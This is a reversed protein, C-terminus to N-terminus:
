ADEVREITVRFSQGDDYMEIFRLADKLPMLLEGEKFRCNMEITEKKHKTISIHCKECLVIGNWDEEAWDVFRSYRRIHHVNLKNRSGCIQCTYDFLKLIRVKWQKQSHQDRKYVESKISSFYCGQSCYKCSKLKLKSKTVLFEKGCFKCVREIHSKKARERHAKTINARHESSLIKGKHSESMRKKAEESFGGAMLLPHAVRTNHGHVYKNKGVEQGCGCACLGM